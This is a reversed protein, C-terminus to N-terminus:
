GDFRALLRTVRPLRETLINVLAKTTRDRVHRNSTTFFWALATSVLDIAADSAKNRQPDFFAWNLLRDVAEHEGYEYILSHLGGHIENHCPGTSSIDMCYSRTLLITLIQPSPLSPM